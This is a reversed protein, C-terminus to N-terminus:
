IALRHLLRFCFLKLFRHPQLFLDQPKQMMRIVSDLVGWARLEHCEHGVLKPLSDHFINGFERDMAAIFKEVIKRLYGARPNACSSLPYIPSNLSNKQISMM